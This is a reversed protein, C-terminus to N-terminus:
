RQKRDGMGHATTQQRARAGHLKQRPGPWGHVLNGSSHALNCSGEKFDKTDSIKDWHHPWDCQVGPPDGGRLEAACNAYHTPQRCPCCVRLAPSAIGPVM